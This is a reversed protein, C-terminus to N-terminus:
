KRFVFSLIVFFIFVVATGAPLGTVKVLNEIFEM